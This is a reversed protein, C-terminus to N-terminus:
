LLGRKRLNEQAQELYPKQLDGIQPWDFIDYDGYIRIAEAEILAARLVEIRKAQAADNFKIKCNENSRM